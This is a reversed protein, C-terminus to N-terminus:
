FLLQNNHNIFFPDVKPEEVIKGMTNLNWNWGRTDIDILSGINERSDSIVLSSFSVLSSQKKSQVYLLMPVSWSDITIELVM